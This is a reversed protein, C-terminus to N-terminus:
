RKRLYANILGVLSGTGHGFHRLIFVIPIIFLYLFKKKKKAIQASFYINVLFYLGFILLFLWLFIIFFLSLGATVVLSLIFILPVLHRWSFAEIGFKLPYTVWFADRFNHIFFDKLNSKPYYYTIIDPALLIKGGARKLRLNFELDQNRILKENFLGIKDFIGKKYGPCSVTDVYCPNKVGIRMYSNGVGFPSSIAFSIAKALITNKGPLTEAISGVCDAKNDSLHKVITSVYNPSYTTHAGMTIIIDGSANKIGINFAHTTFVKLNDILKIFNFEKSYKKIIERTGDESMGDVALIEMKGRPYDQDILSQLCKEIYKEEDRMPIIISVRPLESGKM